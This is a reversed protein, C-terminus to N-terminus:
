GHRIESEPDVEHSSPPDTFGEPQGPAGAGICGEALRAARRLLFAVEGAGSLEGAEREWNTAWERLTGVQATIISALM